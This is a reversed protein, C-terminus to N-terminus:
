FKALSRDKKGVSLFFKCDINWAWNRNNATYSRSYSLDPCRRFFYALATPYFSLARTFFVTSIYDENGSLFKRVNGLTDMRNTVHCPQKRERAFDHYKVVDKVKRPQCSRRCGRRPSIMEKNAIVRYKGAQQIKKDMKLISESIM